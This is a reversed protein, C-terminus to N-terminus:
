ACVIRFVELTSITFSNDAISWGNPHAVQPQCYGQQDNTIDARAPCSL